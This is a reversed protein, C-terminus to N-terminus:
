TARRHRRDAGAEFALGVILGKANRAYPLDMVESGGQAASARSLWDRADNAVLLQTAGDGDRGSRLM